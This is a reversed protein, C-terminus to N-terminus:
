INMLLRVLLRYVRQPKIRTCEISCHTTSWVTQSTPRRERTQNQRGIGDCYLGVRSIFAVIEVDFVIRVNKEKCSLTQWKGGVYIASDLVSMGKTEQELEAQNLKRFFTFASKTPNSAVPRKDKMDDKIEETKLEADPEHSKKRRKADQTSTNRM